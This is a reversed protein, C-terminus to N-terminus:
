ATSFETNSAQSVLQLIGRSSFDRPLAGFDARGQLATELQRHFQDRSIEIAGFRKLHETVFQTDLLQFGGKNLRAVLYVLAVKSADTVYSFMSEGFFARGLQVGYLGGVLEGNLWTEVTHCDGMEFLEGYLERIRKNIWTTRRGVRSAACGSIVGEFDHDVRVEFVNQNITRALRKPVHVANLPLVGRREPEIWYLTPDGASEAMPFIGCGYAKLLVQPTIEVSFQSPSGM